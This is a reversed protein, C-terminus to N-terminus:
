STFGIRKQLPLDVRASRYFSGMGANNKAWVCLNMMEGYVELGAALIQKMHRWDM